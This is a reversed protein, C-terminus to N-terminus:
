LILLEVPNINIKVNNMIKLLEDMTYYIKLNLKMIVFNKEQFKIYVKLIFPIHFVEVKLKIVELTHFNIEKKNCLTELSFKFLPSSDFIDYLNTYDPIKIIFVIFLIFFAM